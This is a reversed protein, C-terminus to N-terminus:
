SALIISHRKSRTKYLTGDVRALAQEINNGTLPMLGTSTTANIAVNENLTHPIKLGYVRQRIREATQWAAGESSNTLPVMFEEGGLRAVIDRSCVANYIAVPVRILAQDGITHGYHDNYARSHDIDFLLVSHNDGNLALLIDLRNQLRRRNYLGTLLGLMNLDSLTNHEQM